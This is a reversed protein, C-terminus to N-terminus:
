LCDWFTITLIVTPGTPNSAKTRIGRKTPKLVSNSHTYFIRQQLRDIKEWKDLAM